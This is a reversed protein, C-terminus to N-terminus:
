PVTKAEEISFIMDHFIRDLIYRVRPSHYESTVAILSHYSNDLAVKKACLCDEYTNSSDTGFLIQNDEVGHTVLYDRLYSSHARDTMNFHSGFSGTPLITANPNQALVDIAVNCRSIAIESLQGQLSNVNGFLLILSNISSYSM